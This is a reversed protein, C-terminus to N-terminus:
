APQSPGREMEELVTEVLRRDIQPDLRQRLIREVADVTMAAVEDRLTVKAKALELDVTGKAKTILAQGQARAQEQIELAIRKGELIAQQIKARAEDEITTLRQAYAIKLRELDQQADAIKQLGEEIRRRREDLIQLVAGWFFKRLILVLVFFGLATTLIQSLM